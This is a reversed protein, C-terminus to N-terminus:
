TACRMFFLGRHFGPRKTRHYRASVLELTGGTSSFFCRRRVASVVQVVTITKLDSFAPEFAKDGTLLREPLSHIFFYGSRNGPEACAFDNVADFRPTTPWNFTALILDPVDAKGLKVSKAPADVCHGRTVWRRCRYFEIGLRSLGEDEIIM